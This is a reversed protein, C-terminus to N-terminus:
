DIEEITVEIEDQKIRGADSTFTIEILYETCDVGGSVWLKGTKSDSVAAIITLGAPEVTASVSALFDSPNESFLTSCDIDYDLNDSPQQFISGIIM